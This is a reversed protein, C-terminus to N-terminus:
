VTSSDSTSYDFTITGDSTPDVVYEEAETAASRTSASPKGGSAAMFFYSFVAAPVNGKINTEEYMDGVVVSYFPQREALRNSFIRYHPDQLIEFIMDHATTRKVRIGLADYFAPFSATTYSTSYIRNYAAVLRVATQAYTLKTTTLYATDTSIDPAYQFLAYEPHTGAESDISSFYDSGYYKCWQDFTNFYVRLYQPYSSKGPVPAPLISKHKAEYVADYSYHPYAYQYFDHAPVYVLHSQVDSRGTLQMYDVVYEGREAELLDNFDGTDVLGVTLLFDSTSVIDSSVKTYFIWPINEAILGGSVVVNSEVLIPASALPDVYDEIEVIVPDPLSPTNVKETTTSVGPLKITPLYIPITHARPLGSSAFNSFVAGPPGKDVFLASFGDSIGTIDGSALTGLADFVANAFDTFRTGDKHTQEASIYTCRYRQTVGSVGTPDNTTTIASITYGNSLYDTHSYCGFWGCHSERWRNAEVQYYANSMTGAILHVKKTLVLVQDMSYSPPKSNAVDTPLAKTLVQTSPPPAPITSSYSDFFAVNACPINRTNFVVENDTNRIHIAPKQTGVDSYVHTTTIYTIGSVGGVLDTVQSKYTTSESGTVPTFVAIELHDTTVASGFGDPVFFTASEYGNISSNVGLLVWQSKCAVSVLPPEPYSNKFYVTYMFKERVNWPQLSYLKYTSNAASIYTYSGFLYPIDPCSTAIFEKLVLNKYYEDVTTSGTITNVMMGYPSSSKAEEGKSFLVVATDCRVDIPIDTPRKVTLTSTLPDFGAYHPVKLMAKTGYDVTNLPYSVVQIDRGALDPLLYDVSDTAALVVYSGYYQGVLNQDSYTVFAEERGNVEVYGSTNLNVTADLQETTLTV